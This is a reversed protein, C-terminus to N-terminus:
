REVNTDGPNIETSETETAASSGAAHLAEVITSLMESQMEAKFIRLTELLTEKSVSM